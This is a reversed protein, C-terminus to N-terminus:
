RITTDESGSIISTGDLTIAVSRVTKEHGDFRTLPESLKGGASIARLRVASDASGSVVLRGNRSFAVCSVIADEQQM